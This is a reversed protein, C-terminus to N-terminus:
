ETYGETFVNARQEETLNNFATEFCKAILQNGVQFTTSYGQQTDTEPIFM